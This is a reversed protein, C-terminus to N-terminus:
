KLPNKSPTGAKRPYAKPTNKVKYIKVLSRNMDTGPIQYKIIDGIKGGLLFVAHKAQLIESDAEGSKYSLFMGDKKVFPICYEALSSLNAVARSVCIDFNERYDAKKAMEEARGHVASIEKLGLTQIVENLFRIRKNLSDMLVIEMDPFAIKLPIGPFGAGTGLDLIWYKKTLDVSKVLCLSDLFHKEVVQDFETIGTLNMVKNWQILMEYYNLFQETQNQDLVINLEKLGAKFKDLNYSM